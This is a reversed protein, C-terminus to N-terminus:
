NLVTKIYQPELGSLGASIVVATFILKKIAFPVAKSKWFNQFAYFGTKMAMRHKAIDTGIGGNM